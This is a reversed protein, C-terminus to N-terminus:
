DDKLLLRGDTYLKFLKEKIKNNKDMESTDKIFIINDNLQVSWVVKQAPNALVIYTPYNVKMLLGGLRFLKTNKNIYRVWTKMIPLTKLIDMEEITNLSISGELRKIIEKNTLKNKVPLTNDRKLTNVSKFTNMMNGKGKGKKLTIRKTETETTDTETNDTETYDGETDDIDTETEDIGTEGTETSSDYPVSTSYDYSSEYSTYDTDDTTSAEKKKVILGKM